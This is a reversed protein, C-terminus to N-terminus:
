RSHNKPYCPAFTTVFIPVGGYEFSWGVKSLYSKNMCRFGIPDHDSICKLVRRVGEGFEEVSQGFQDGPLEFLFGDLHLHDGVVLLKTLAPLSRLWFSFIVQLCCTLSHFFVCLLIATIYVIVISSLSNHTSYLVLFSVENRETRHPSPPHAHTLSPNSSTKIVNHWSLDCFALYSQLTPVVKSNLSM